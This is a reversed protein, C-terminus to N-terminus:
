GHGIAAFKIGKLEKPELIRRADVVCPERMLKKFDSKKLRRFVDWETMLICCDSGSICDKMKDCIKIRNEFLRRTNENAMPDYAAVKAGKELLEKILRISISNRIDDSDKKFSLGLISFRKGKFNGLLGKALDLVQYLQSENVKQVTELLTANYGSNQAFNILADVDKPFCSGGYGPGAKLFKPGIRDDLGIADAIDGVDVGGLKQCINAISNIFSIKTALFANNAYKILEATNHTTEVVPLKKDNYIKQYFKRVKKIDNISKSGIVIAHPNLNDKLASGEKLFEPNSVLGFEKYCKKQSFKELMPVIVKLATGPVVTSKIVVVPYHGIDKIVKGLKQCASKIHVLDIEGSEKSPTGVCLFIIDSNNPITTQIKLSHKLTKKLLKELNPEYFPPKAQRIMNAKSKDIEIGTVDIGRSALFTALTLGVFGMGIVSIKKM